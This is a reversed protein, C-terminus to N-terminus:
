DPQKELARALAQQLRPDARAEQPAARLTAKAAQADGRRLQLDALTLRAELSAPDFGLMEALTSEADAPRGARLLAEVLLGYAVRNQPVKDILGRLVDAARAPQDDELYIRSLTLAVEADTPERALVAEYAERAKAIAGHDGRAALDIQLAGVARLVDLNDPALRRAEALSAAAGALATNRQAVDRGLQVSRALAQAKEILIYAADPGKASLALARDFAAGAEDFRGAMSLLKGEAFASAAAPPEPPPSVATAAPSAAQAPPAGAVLVALLLAAAFRSPIM